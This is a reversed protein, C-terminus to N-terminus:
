TPYHQRGPIVGRVGGTPNSTDGSRRPIVHMHAHPITQGADLGDNVGLNFGTISPDEAERQARVRQALRDVALGEPRTLESWSAVHRRPLVLTHGATVPYADTVAVALPHEAVARELAKTCFPCGSDRTDYIASAQRLDADDRNGKNQNCRYCLAQLNSLDDSGGRSRPVIHDVELFREEAPVGCLECRGHAAKLVDYRLSGSIYGTSTSRHQWIAAGRDELYDQLKQEALGVLDDVQEPTLEDYGALEYCSGSRIVIGHRLLVRGPMATVIRRYYDLQSRDLEVFHRAIDTVTASGEGRLLTLLMAPQYVHHMRMRISIFDRLEEFRTVDESALWCQDPGHAPAYLDATTGM